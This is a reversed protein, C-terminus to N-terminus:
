ILVHDHTGPAPAAQKALTMRGSMGLHTLWVLGGDLHALIYKARRAIRQVRRGELRPAFDPPFPFRLDPRRLTVRALTRGALARDLGRCITEVEPLEPMLRCALRLPPRASHEPQHGIGGGFVRDPEAVTRDGGGGLGGQDAAD